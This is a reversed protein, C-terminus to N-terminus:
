AGDRAPHSEFERASTDTLRGILAVIEEPKPPKRLCANFGAALTREITTTGEFGTLAIAPIDCIGPTARIERIFEYGDVLPMRIDSIILDPPSGIVSEMGERGNGATTVAYGLLELETKMFWLIDEADDVVLIHITKGATAPERPPAPELSVSDTQSLDVMQRDMRIGGEIVGAFEVCDTVLQGLTKSM